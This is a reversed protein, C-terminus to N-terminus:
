RSVGTSIQQSVVTCSEVLHDPYSLIYVKSHKRGTTEDANYEELIRRITAAGVYITEDEILAFVFPHANFQAELIQQVSKSEWRIPRVNSLRCTVTAAAARFAPNSGDYVLLSDAM